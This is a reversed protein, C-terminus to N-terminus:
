GGYVVLDTRTSTDQNDRALCPPTDQSVAARASQNIRVPVIGVAVVVVSMAVVVVTMATEVM